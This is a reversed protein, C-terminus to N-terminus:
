KVEDKYVGLKPKKKSITCAAKDVLEVITKILKTFYSSEADM